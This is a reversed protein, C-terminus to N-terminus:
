FKFLCAGINECYRLASFKLTPPVDQISRSLDCLIMYKHQKFHRGVQYMQGRMKSEPQLGTNHNRARDGGNESKGVYWGFDYEITGDQDKFLIIYIVMRVDTSGPKIWNQFSDAINWLQLLTFDDDTIVTAVDKPVAICM